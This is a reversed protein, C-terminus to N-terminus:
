LDLSNNKKSIKRKMRKKNKSKKTLWPSQDPETLKDTELKDLNESSDTLNLDNGLNIKGSSKSQNLKNHDTSTSDSISALKGFTKGTIQPFIDSISKQTNSSGPRLSSHLDM